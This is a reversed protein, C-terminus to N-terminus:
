VRNSILLKRSLVSFERGRALLRQFNVNRQGKRSIKFVTQFNFIRQGKCSISNLVSSERGKALSHIEFRQKFYFLRRSLILFERGEALSSQFLFVGQKKGLFKLFIHHRFHKVKFKKDSVQQTEQQWSQNRSVRNIVQMCLSFFFMTTTGCM